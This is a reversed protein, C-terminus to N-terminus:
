ACTAPSYRGSASTSSSLTRERSRDTSCPENGGFRRRGHAPGLNAGEPAFRWILRAARGADLGISGAPRLLGPNGFRHQPKRGADADEVNLSIFREGARPSAERSMATRPGVLVPLVCKATSRM